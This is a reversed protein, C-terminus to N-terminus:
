KENRRYWFVHDTKEASHRVTLVGVSRLRSEPLEIVANNTLFFGGTRLMAEIGAFALSQDLKDYYVFVNTAIVLDFPAGTWKETVVNFDEPTVRTAVQPRVAIGRLEIGKGMEPPRPIPTESGIRDGISKWYSVLAPAWQSGADIPLRLVYPAGAKARDRIAQIHDNVRPSIDFTTLEIEAPSRFLM